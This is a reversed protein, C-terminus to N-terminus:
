LPPIPDDEVVQFLETFVVKVGNVAAELTVWTEKLGQRFAKLVNKIENLDNSDGKFEAKARRLIQNPTLEGGFAHILPEGNDNCAVAEPDDEQRCPASETAIPESRAGGTIPQPSQGVVELNEGEPEEAFAAEFMKKAIEQASPNGEPVVCMSGCPIAREEEEKKKAAELAAEHELGIQTLQSAAAQIYSAQVIGTASAGDPFAGPSAIPGAQLPRGIEPVYSSGGQTSVGSSLESAVGDAGLWSYPPPSNTTPVGFETSNYTSLLKTETESFAATGVIDGELDRLQLVPTGGSKQIAALEGGIGSINRTWKEAGESTWTPAEGPGAYHSIVKSSTPKGESVTEMTRGSPDYYYKITQESQKQSEVQGDVYYTTTLTHEGADAAPLKTTNGFTEYEVGSDILRNASDYSHAQLEGGETACTETSSERTTEGTRNGEEDYAYLRAKCGKGVPTEQTEILRGDNDYIYNEKSLTSTQQLTEGHISPVVTDSFWTEPCKSACDKEKKYEIGTVTGAPNFVYDATMGNPYGETLMKGEVDYTATFMMGPESSDVLKEMFGTTANYSYTQYSAAEVGKGESMELLRRDSGEEYVYKAVNGEADTYETMQGLTNDKTTTTKTGGKITASQKELAGTEANYENTVKPLATDTAPSSTEESTLARGAPDYTETKARTTSGFKETTAEVEDWINYTLTTIPLEPTGSVGSQAAAKTECRLGAWEPHGGCSPYEANAETSYYVTQIDHAGENGPRPALTWEQVRNNGGDTVYLVGSSSVAPAEPSSFQGNGSGKTGFATLFYGAPTFEEVRYNDVDTVYLNGDADVTIGAPTNFQGNGSGKSGFQALYKGEENFEEVRNNGLDTVYLDGEDFVLDAPYHFQGNGSGSIGARCGSTCVELKEEGNSVGFGFMKVFEGKENFEQVRENQVDTVWIDGKSDMAVGEPSSFQGAGTGASGFTKFEGKETIEEVRNNKSDGIYVNGTSRNVAIGIPSDFQGNGSGSSGYNKLFAGSSSFEEIRNASENAVWLNGHADFADGVPDGLKESESGTNGFQSTYVPASPVPTWMEVRDNESDVAYMDGSVNVAVGEPETFQGSEAGKSGFASVFGGSSMFEEVRDDKADVVYVSGSVSDVAIGNVSEFQGNGTGQSGFQGAYAGSTSIEEVRYNGDDSVYLKGNGFAIGTPYKFNGEGTGWSGYTAIFTGTASFEEVRNNESDAVWVNGSSDITIGHPANFQGSGSGAIGTQCSSTCVEFEAKGNSVGFGFTRVFAGSSSLEEVRNHGKDVVYVNGASQSIAVGSPESFQGGGSGASGYSAIFAGSSSFKEIRDGGFDSVWINGSADVADGSPGTFQGNGSGKSGFQLSYVLVPRSQSNSGEPSRTEIVAGTSEKKSNEQYVTTTTLNLGGPEITASTPQRLIWGLNGQGSYSTKTTRDDFQEKSATEAFNETKTALDYTEHTKEEVEKAGENYYYKVHDRASVENDSKVKENGKAIKVTHEPGLTELLKSEPAAQRGSEKEEKEEKEKEEKTEGNYKSKTDLLESAEASKCEKKSVSKCGEKLAETRNDASLSRTAEGAENYESTAIGGTPVATNVIEGRINWYRLTARKYDSAPWGQPEDPPFVAMGEVPDNGEKQGWEEVKEKSLNPAYQGANSVPVGYEITSVASTGPNPPAPLPNPVGTPEWSEVKNGTGDTVYLHKGNVAIGRAEASVAFQALYEGSENFEEVRDNGSDVIYIKGSAIAIGRPSSFQGNGSGKSGFQGVYQDPYTGDFEEVRDNGEDVVYTEENESFVIGAVGKFQGNGTGEKGFTEYETGRFPDGAEMPLKQVEDKAPLTVYLKETYQGSPTQAPEVWAPAKEVGYTKDNELKQSAFAIRNNASDAIYLYKGEGSEGIALGEPTNFQSTGSGKTGFSKLFGGSSSFKEIRNNGSDAVFVDEQEGIAVGWPAKFQGNGEGTSGFESKKSWYAVTKVQTSENSEAVTSGDKNTATVFVALEKNRDSITPTYTQNTAGLIPSCIRFKGEEIFCREWQYGYALPSDSWSGDSVSLTNGESPYTTSLAPATTKVPGETSSMATSASPRTVSLLRGTSSDGAITGYTFVWPQEGSPSVATVHGEADYGYTTKLAPSIRPDWEARLRGQKDYSYEAVATETMAKTAPNYAHFFVKNLHGKYEGWETSSEGTATTAKAYEFTLARCGQVLPTCSTVGAPIPALAETPEVVAKGEEEVTTYAYTTTMPAEPGGAETPLWAPRMWEDVDNTGSDVIYVSGEANVAIGQPTTFQGPGSGAAGFKTIYTGSPEFEQVRDNVADVVYLNGTRPDVAIGDPDKFEGNGTGEKGFQSLYTGVGTTSFEQVRNNGGDTVYLNGGSFVINLPGKFEGKETGEVGRGEHLLTKLYEGKENFEEIRNNGYDAVWVNGSSDIAIGAMVYFQGNGSGAIGAHCKSTCIEFEDKENSVGWGFTKIFAGSSSLEEVRNNGQDTVYVDGHADIAVGWPAVFQKEATGESGYTTLLDGTPSFKELLDDHNNTVWINGAADVADTAPHNLQGAESGFQNTFTSPKSQTSTPQEFKTKTGNAADTLVYESIGKGSVKEKTELKLNSDGKPSVFEGKENRTFTTRAGGSASLTANGSPAIALGEGGGLNIAWQPGLPGEAGATLNRSQYARSVGSAGGLSVDNAGLTLQGDGPDVSGPGVSVPSTGHVRFTFEEVAVNNANDTATVILSHQGPAYDRADLTFETSATCPGLPCSAASGTVEHGDVSMKISKIGSSKTTGEGDTAEVKMHPEGSPLENGNQFGSIKIGHPPAADVKITTDHLAYLSATDQAFGEIEDEGNAMQNDYIEGQNVSESCQIGLCAGKEDMEYIKKQREWGSGAVRFLGIGLGPDTANVEFAGSHPGLWSGGGYLVNTDNEKTEPNYLTPSTTNFKLEPGKEQTIDVYARTLTNIGSASEGSVNTEQEYAATNHNEPPAEGLVENTECKVSCVAGGNDGEDVEAVEPLPTYAETYPAKPTYLVMYNQIHAGSDNWHGEAFARTIQSEGRTTYFLGGWEGIYHVHNISETWSGDEPHEPAGFATGSHEFHWETQHLMGEYVEGSFRSDEVQPDVTIPMKYSDDTVGIVKVDLVNGRSISMSVPVASGEADQAVPPLVTAIKTGADVVNVGSGNDAGVLRAGVPMSVRFFLDRPSDVSRLLTEASFGTTTPKILTDADTLTNAYIVSAGDVEGQSGALAAGRANVPTLSVGTEGLGIGSGLRKPIQVSVAPRIPRFAAGAERLGLDIPAYRGPSTQLAIPEFSEIVSHKHNPTILQEANNSPYGVVKEGSPLSPPGGAPEDVLKPFAERVLAKAQGADLHEYATQSRVRAVFAGPSMRQVEVADEAQQNGDLSQVGSVVLTSLMSPSGGGGESSSVSFSQAFTLAPVALLAVVM